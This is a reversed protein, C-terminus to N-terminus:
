FKWWPKKTKEKGIIQEKYEVWDKFGSDDTGNEIFKENSIDYAIWDHEVCMLLILSLVNSGGRVHLMFNNGLSEGEGLNFEMDAFENTLTGWSSDSWDSDKFTSQINDIVSQRSKFDPWDGKEFDVPEKSNMILIDWSM